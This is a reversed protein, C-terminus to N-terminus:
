DQRAMLNVKYQHTTKNYRALENILCMPTKNEPVCSTVGDLIFYFANEM